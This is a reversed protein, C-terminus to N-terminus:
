SRTKRNKSSKTRRRKRARTGRKKRKGKTGSSDQQPPTPTRARWKGDEYVVVSEKGESRRKQDEKLAAKFSPSETTIRPSFKSPEMNQFPQFPEPIQQAGMIRKRAESAKEIARQERRQKRKWRKSPSKSPSKDAAKSKSKNPM